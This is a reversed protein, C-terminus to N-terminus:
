PYGPLAKRNRSFQSNFLRERELFGIAALATGRGRELRDVEANRHAPWLIDIVVLKNQRHQPADPIHQRESASDRRSIERKGNTDDESQRGGERPGLM